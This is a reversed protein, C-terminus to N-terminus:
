DNGVAGTVENMCIDFSSTEGSPLNTVEFKTFNLSVSEMPETAGGAGSQSSSILIDNMKIQLYEVPKEGAKRVTIQGESIHKGTVCHQLLQPTAVDIKKMISLDSINVKGSGGGGGCSRATPNSAGWSFSLIEIEGRHKNDRSEGTIGELKLFMDVAM